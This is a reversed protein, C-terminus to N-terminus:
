AHMKRSRLFLMYNEVEVTTASLNRIRVKIERLKTATGDTDVTTPIEDGEILRQWTTEGAGPWAKGKWECVLGEPLDPETTFYLTDFVFTNYNDADNSTSLVNKSGGFKHWISEVAGNPSLVCQGETLTYDVSAALDIHETDIFEEGIVVQYPYNQALITEYKAKALEEAKWSFPDAYIPLDLDAVKDKGTNLDVPKIFLPPYKSISVRGEANFVRKWPATTPVGAGQDFLKYGLTNIQQGLIDRPIARPYSIEDDVEIMAESPLMSSLEHVIRTVIRTRKSYVAYPM